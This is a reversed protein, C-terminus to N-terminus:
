VASVNLGLLRKIRLKISLQLFQYSVYAAVVGGTLGYLDSALPVAFLMILLTLFFFKLYGWNMGSVSAVFMSPGIFVSAVSDLVLLLYVLTAAHLYEEGFVGLILDLFLWLFFASCLTATLKWYASKKLLREAQAMDKGNIAGAIAPRFAQMVAFNVFGLMVVIKVAVAYDAIDRDDLVSSFLLTCLEVFYQVFLLPVVMLAGYKLWKSFAVRGPLDLRYYRVVVSQMVWFSFLAALVNALLYLWLATDLSMRSFFALLVVSFLLPRIFGLSLSSRRVEGCAHGFSENVRLLAIFPASALGIYWHEIDPHADFVGWLGCGLWILMFAVTFVMLPLLASATYRRASTTRGLTVYKNLFRFSGSEVNLTMLMSILLGLALVQVFQSFAVKDLGKALLVYALFGFGAGMVKITYVIISSKLM